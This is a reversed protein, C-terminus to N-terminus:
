ASLREMNKLVLGVDWYGILSLTTSVKAYQYAYNDTKYTLIYGMMLRRGNTILLNLIVFNHYEQQDAPLAKHLLM